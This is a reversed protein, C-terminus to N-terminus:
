EAGVASRFKAATGDKAAKAGWQWDFYLTKVDKLAEQQPNGPIMSKGYGGCKHLGRLWEPSGHIWYM